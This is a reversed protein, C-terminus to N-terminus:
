LYVCGISYRKKKRALAEQQNLSPNAERPHPLPIFPENAREEARKRKLRETLSLVKRPERETM